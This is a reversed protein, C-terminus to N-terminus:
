WRAVTLPYPKCYLWYANGTGGGQAPRDIWGSHQAYGSAQLLRIAQTDTREVSVQHLYNRPKGGLEHVLTMGHDITGAPTGVDVPTPINDPYTTTDCCDTKVMKENALKTTSM